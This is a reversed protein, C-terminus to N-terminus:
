AARRVGRRPASPTALALIHDRLRRALDLTRTRDGSSLDANGLLTRRLMALDVIYRQLQAMDTVDRNDERILELIASNTPRSSGAGSSPVLRAPGSASGEHFPSLLEAFWQREDNPLTTKDTLASIIRELRAVASARILRDHINAM